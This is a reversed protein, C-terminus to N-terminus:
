GYIEMYKRNVDFASCLEMLEIDNYYFKTADALTAIHKTDLAM